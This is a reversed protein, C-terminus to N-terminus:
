RKVVLTVGDGLPLLSLDVREDQHIKKNLAQIANTDADVINEEAVRGEWLTNDILMLGNPRLLQLCKEYYVDYGTKDADIFALDFTGAKGEELLQNLTREAPALRLDIKHAVNAKQWYPQGISTWEESIDCAIIKGDEPLVQAVSLASYGTFVGVEICNKAGILKALLAMFQGQEPSIQMISRPLQATVKRLAEQAQSERLSVSHIYQYLKPPFAYTHSAM